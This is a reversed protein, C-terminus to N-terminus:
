GHQTYTRAHTLSLLPFGAVPSAQSTCVHCAVDRDAYLGVQICHLVRGYINNFM